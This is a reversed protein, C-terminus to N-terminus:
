LNPVVSASPDQWTEDCRCGLWHHPRKVMTWLTEPCQEARECRLTNSKQASALESQKYQLHSMLPRVGHVRQM